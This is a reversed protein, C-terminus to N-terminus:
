GQALTMTMILDSWLLESYTYKYGKERSYTGCECYDVTIQLFRTLALTFLISSSIPSSPESYAADIPAILIETGQKLVSINLLM